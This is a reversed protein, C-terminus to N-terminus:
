LVDIANSMFSTRPMMFDFHRVFRVTSLLESWYAWETDHGVVCCRKELFIRACNVRDLGSECDIFVVDWEQDSLAMADQVLTSTTKIKGNCIPVFRSAWAPDTELTLAHDSLLHVMPTSYWGSGIELVRRGFKQIALALPAMHTSWIDYTANMM